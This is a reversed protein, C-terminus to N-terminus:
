FLTQLSIITLNKFIMRKYKINLSEINGKLWGGTADEDRTLIETQGSNRIM